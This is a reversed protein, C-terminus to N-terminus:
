SKHSEDPQVPHNPYYNKTQILDAEAGGEVWAGSPQIGNTRSCLGQYLRALVKARSWPSYHTNILERARASMKEALSRNSLVQQLAHALAIPDRPRVLLATEGHSVIEPIGGVATSVVPIGSAMAELMANPSGESLSSIAMLDAARYYPRVDNVHGVLFVQRELGGRRIANQITQRELGEGVIALRVALGPSIQRLHGIAAILDPFAKEKSLRGVALVLMEGPEVLRDRAIAEQTEPVCTLWGPDIANHLVIIRGSQIGRSSLQRSFSDSVAVVQSPARLSWRDLQALLERRLTSRTYGHFFAVWKRHKNLGCARVLFHSKFMHTQIIDPAVREVVRKLHGIVRHDFTYHEPISHIPINDRLAQQMLENPATKELETGQPV